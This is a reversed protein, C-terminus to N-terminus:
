PDLSELVAIPNDSFGDLCSSSCFHLEYEDHEAAYLPNGSMGLGCGACQAVVQDIAGDAADAQILVGTMSPPEDSPVPDPQRAGCGLILLFMWM